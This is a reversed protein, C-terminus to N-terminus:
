SQEKSMPMSTHQHVIRWRGDSKDLCMTCRVTDDVKEGSTTEGQCHLIGYIFAKNVGVHIKTDTLYFKFGDKFDPQWEGFSDRFSQASQYMLPPLVDFIVADQAHHKLVDDNRGEANAQEWDRVIQQIETTDSMVKGM